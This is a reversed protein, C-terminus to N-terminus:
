GLGRFANGEKSEEEWALSSNFCHGSDHKRSKGVLRWRGDGYIRAAAAWAAEVGRLRGISIRHDLISLGPDFLGIGTLGLIIQV